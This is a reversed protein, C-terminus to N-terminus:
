LEPADTPRFALDLNSQRAVEVLEAHIQEPDVGAPLDVDIIVTYVDDGVLRSALDTINAGRAALAASIRYLIGPRDSGYLSIVFPRSPAATDAHPVERASLMLNFREAPPRLADELGAQSLDDPAQVLLIMAFQRGLLSMSCDALNCGLEFLVETAAAVIGPRDEGIATVTLDHM